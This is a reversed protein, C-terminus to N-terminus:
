RDKWANPEYSASTANSDEAHATEESRNGCNSCYITGSRLTDGCIPCTRPKPICRRLLDKVSHIRRRKLAEQARWVAFIIAYTLIASNIGIMINVGTPPAKPEAETVSKDVNVPSAIPFTYESLAGHFTGDWLVAEGAEDSTLLIKFNDIRAQIPPDAKRNVVVISGISTFNVDYYSVRLWEDTGSNTHCFTNNNRDICNEAPYDAHFSSMEIRRQYPLVMSSDTKMLMIEALNIISSGTKRIQVWVARVSPSWSKASNNGNAICPSGKYCAYKADSWLSVYETHSDQKICNQWAQERWMEYEESTFARHGGSSPALEWATSEFSSLSDTCHGQGLSTWHDEHAALGPLLAFAALVSSGTM